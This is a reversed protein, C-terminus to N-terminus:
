TRFEAFATEGLLLMTRRGPVEPTLPTIFGRLPRGVEATATTTARWPPQGELQIDLWLLWARDNPLSGSGYKSM